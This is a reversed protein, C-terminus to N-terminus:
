PTIRLFGRWIPKGDIMVDARYMGPASVMPTEWSSLSIDGKRVDIKGPKSEVIVRNESDRLRMVSAGKLRQQPAWTVFVIFKPDRISFEDRQDSPTVTNAKIIGRAFGGSLVHEDGTVAAILEGKARLDTMSSPETTPIVRVLQFPVIPAGKLQARFRLVDQLRTAGPVDSAGVMGILEGFENLV